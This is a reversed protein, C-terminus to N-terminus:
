RPFDAAFRKIWESAAQEIPIHRGKQINEQQYSEIHCIQEVMRIHFAEEKDIFIVGITFGQAEENVWVVQGTARFSCDVSPIQIHVNQRVSLRVHSQFSLGGQSINLLSTHDVDTDSDIAQADIPISSPHRIFNRQMM